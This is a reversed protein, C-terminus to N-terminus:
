ESTVAHLVTSLQGDDFEAGPTLYMAAQGLDFTVVFNKLVGLGVNGADVRDAFAGERALVVDVPRNHLAVGGIELVDLTSRYAANSGGIGYNLANHTSTPVLGSHADVFPRYLLM